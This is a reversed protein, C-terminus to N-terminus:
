YIWQIAVAPVQAWGMSALASQSIRYLGTQAIKFKQYTLSYNIWENQFPQAASEKKYSLLLLLAVLIPLVNFRM